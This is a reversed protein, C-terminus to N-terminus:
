FESNGGAPCISFKNLVERAYRISHKDGLEEALLLLGKIDDVDYWEPLLAIELGISKARDLTISLVKDTGWPINEFISKHLMKMGILYYGGDKSPGLCVDARGLSSLAKKLYSSPLSPSDCGLVIVPCYGLGMAHSIARGMREGLKEGEQSFLSVDPPVVKQIIGRQHSPTFAVFTFAQRIKRALNLTDRLFAKHLEACEVPSLTEQLRTKVLGPIPVKAM